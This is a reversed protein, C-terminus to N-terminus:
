LRAKPGLTSSDDAVEGPQAQLPDPQQGIRIVRLGDGMLREHNILGHKGDNGRGQQHPGDGLAHLEFGKEDESKQPTGQNIVGDGMPNPPHAPPDALHPPQVKGPSDHDM